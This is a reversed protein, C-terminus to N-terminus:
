RTVRGFVVSSTWIKRKSISKGSRPSDYMMGNGAYVGVHTVARGYVVFVLDGPVAQSRPIHRVAAFQQQATRPLSVGLQKYVYRTFGSCDFGAPTSGGYRYMIGVYRSALSLVAAGRVAPIAATPSAAASKPTVAARPAVAAKPAVAARPAVAAKPMVAARATSRSVHAQTRAALASSVAGTSATLAGSDFQLSATAPASLPAGAAQQVADLQGAVSVAASAPAADVLPVSATQPSSKDLLPQPMASAPVAMSAILGTSVAIVASGRGINEVRESVALTIGTTITSLPTVARQPARHRATARDTV